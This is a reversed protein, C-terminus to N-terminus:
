ARSKIGGGEAKRRAVDFVRFPGLSSTVSMITTGVLTPEIMRLLEVSSILGTGATPPFHSFLQGGLTRPHLGRKKGGLDIPVSHPWGESSRGLLQWCM